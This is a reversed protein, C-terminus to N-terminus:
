SSTTTPTASGDSSPAGAKESWRAIAVDRLYRRLLDDVIVDVAGTDTGIDARDKRVVVVYLVFHGRVLWANRSTAYGMANDINPDSIYGRLSGQNTDVLEKLQDTFATASQTDQLNLVGATAFYHDDYSNFTARLVQTCDTTNQLLHRVEVAGAISCQEVVQPEGIM